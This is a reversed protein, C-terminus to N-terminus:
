SRRKLLLTITTVGVALTAVVWLIPAIPLLVLVVDNTLDETYYTYSMNYTKSSDLPGDDKASSIALAKSSVTYSFNTYDLTASGFESVEATGGAVIVVSFYEYTDSDNRANYTLTTSNSVDADILAYQTYETYGADTTFSAVSPTLALAIVVMIFVAMVQKMQGQM